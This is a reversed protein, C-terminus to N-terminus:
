NATVVVFAEDSDTGDSVVFKINYIGAVDPTFYATKLSNDTIGTVASTAPASILTWTYYLTQQDADYSQSGDLLVISNITKTLAATTIAVPPHNSGTGVGNILAEVTDSAVSSSNTVKLYVLYGGGKDPTFSTVVATASGLTASSGKPRHLSWAYTLAKGQPDSSTTADIRVPTGLKVTENDATFSASPVTQTTQATVTVTVLAQDSDTGDSVVFKVNYIGAVDPTFYATKATNDNLTTVASTSPVGILTWTYYLSQQDSDYSKSGDLVAANGTTVAVAATTIAVPPHNSGTGVGSIRLTAVGSTKASTNTVVLSVMYYGGKDPTFSTSTATASGLKAASGTPIDLSWAYTLTEGQPDYSSSGDLIIPTGVKATDKSATFNAVPTTKKAPPNVLENFKSDLGCSAATVAMFGAVALANLFRMNLRYTM